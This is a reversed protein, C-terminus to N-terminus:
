QILYGGDVPLEVGTIYRAEDSALFLVANAVDESEGIRGLPIRQVVIQMAAPNVVSNRMPPMVGPQICNVRIGKPAFQMAAARTLTRIAGKSAGYGLHIGVGVESAISCINVIAGGGQALMRPIVTKCGLFAGNANISMLREWENGDLVDIETGSTVGANNVLIDLRGWKAVAAAVAKKWDEEDTVDLRAFFAGEGLSRALAAGENDLIDAICVKAGEQVFRKATAAGLGSAAGSILATKGTLRM